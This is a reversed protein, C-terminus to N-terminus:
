AKASLPKRKARSPPRRPRAREKAPLPEHRLIGLERQLDEANRPAHDGIDNNYYVYVDRDRLWGRIDKADDKAHRQTYKGRYKGTPGHRRVYVLPADNPKSVPAAWKMDHLCLAAQHSDLIRIIGPELWSPNRFEVALPWGQDDLLSLFADLRHADVDMQPPLQVLLPGRQKSPVPEISSFFWPLRGEPDELRRYHTFGRWLKFAFRFGDPVVTAWREVTKAQPVRYFSANVEVTNFRRAIDALWDRSALGPPYVDNRWHQYSWGSTGIFAQGVSPIPRGAKPYM